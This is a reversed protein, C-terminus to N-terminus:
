LKARGIIDAGGAVIVDLARGRPLIHLAYFEAQDLASRAGGRAAIAWQWAGAVVGPHLDIPRGGHM